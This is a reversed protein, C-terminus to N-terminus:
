GAPAPKGGRLRAEHVPVYVTGEYERRSEYLAFTGVDFRGFERRVAPGAKQVLARVADTDGGGGGRMRGLTIHAHFVEKEARFGLRRAGDNVTKRLAQLAEAAQADYGDIGAWIVRPAGSEPFLGTGRCVADIPGCAAAAEAVLAAAATLDRDPAEGIFRVTVHYNAPRTWSVPARAVKLRTVEADLRNRLREPIEFAYFLRAV